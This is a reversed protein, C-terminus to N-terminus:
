RQRLRPNVYEEYARGVLFFSVVVLAISVGPPIVWWWAKRMAASKFAYYLMYGWRMKLPDGLGIFCKAM